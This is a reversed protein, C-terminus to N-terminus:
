NNLNNLRYNRRVYPAYVLTYGLGAFTLAGAITVGLTSIAYVSMVFIAIDLLQSSKAVAWKLYKNSEVLAVLGGLMAIGFFIQTGISVSLVITGIVAVAGFIFAGTTYSLPKIEPVDLVFLPESPRAESHLRSERTVM